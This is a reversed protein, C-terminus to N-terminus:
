DERFLVARIANGLKSFGIIRVGHARSEESIYVPTSAFMQFEGGKWGIHVKGIQSRCMELFHSVTIPDASLDFALCEYYGRYSFFKGPYLGTEIEVLLDGFGSQEYYELADVISLLNLNDTDLDICMKTDSCHEYDYKNFFTKAKM